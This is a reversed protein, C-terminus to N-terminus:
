DNISPDTSKDSLVSSTDQLKKQDPFKILNKKLSEDHQLYSGEDFFMFGTDSKKKKFEFLDRANEKM